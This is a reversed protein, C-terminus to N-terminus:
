DETLTEAIIKWTSDVKNLVLNMRGNTVSDKQQRNWDAVVVAAVDGVMDIQMNEIRLTGMEPCFQQALRNYVPQWDKTTEGNINITLSDFKRYDAMYRELNRVNWADVRNKLMSKIQQEGSGVISTAPVTDSAVSASVISADIGNPNAMLDPSAVDTTVPTEVAAEGSGSRDGFQEDILNYGMWAIAFMAAFLIIDNKMTKKKVPQKTTKLM